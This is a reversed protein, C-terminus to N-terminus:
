PGSIIVKDCYCLLVEEQQHLKSYVLQISLLHSLGVDEWFRTDRTHCLAVDLQSAEIRTM